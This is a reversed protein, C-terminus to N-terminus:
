NGFARVELRIDVRRLGPTEDKYNASSGIEFAISTGEVTKIMGIFHRKIQEEAELLRTPSKDWGMLTITGSSKNETTSRSLENYTGAFYPYTPVGDFSEYAYTMGIAQMEDAVAQLVALKSGIRM